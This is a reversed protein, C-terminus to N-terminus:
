NELMPTLIGSTNNSAVAISEEHMFIITKHFIHKMRAMHSIKNAICTNSM